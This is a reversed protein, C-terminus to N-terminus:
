LLKQVTDSCVFSTQYLLTFCISTPNFTLLNQRDHAESITKNEAKAFVTPDNNKVSHSSDNDNALIKHCTSNNETLSGKCKM